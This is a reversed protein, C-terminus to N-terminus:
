RLYPIADMIAPSMSRLRKRLDTALNEKSGKRPRM